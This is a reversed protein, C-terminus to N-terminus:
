QRMRPVAPPPLTPPSTLLRLSVVPAVRVRSPSVCVCVCSSATRSVCVCEGANGLAHSAVHAFAQQVALIFLHPDLCKSNSGARQLPM